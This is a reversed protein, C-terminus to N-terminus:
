FQVPTGPNWVAHDVFHEKKWIPVRLKIQDILYRCAAFANERHASSVCIIISIEGAKLQGLRHRILIGYLNWQHYTEQVIERIVKDALPQYAEYELYLVPKGENHNRVIGQFIVEAGAKENYLEDILENLHLPKETLYSM